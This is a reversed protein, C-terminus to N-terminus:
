TLFAAPLNETSKLKVYLQVCTGAFELIIKLYTLINM